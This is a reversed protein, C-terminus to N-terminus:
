SAARASIGVMERLVTYWVTWSRSDIPSTLQEVDAGAAEPDVGVDLVRVLVEHAGPAAGHAVHESSM